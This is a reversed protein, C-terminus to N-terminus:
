IKDYEIEFIILTRGKDVTHLSVGLELSKQIIYKAWDKMFILKFRLSLFLKGIYWIFCCFNEMENM